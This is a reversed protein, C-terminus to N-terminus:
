AHAVTLHSVAEGKHSGQQTFHSFINGGKSFLTFIHTSTDFGHGIDSLRILERRVQDIIKQAVCFTVVSEPEKELLLHNVPLVPRVEGLM